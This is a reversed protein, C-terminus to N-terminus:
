RIRCRNLIRRLERRDQLWCCKQLTQRPSQGNHFPFGCTNYWDVQKTRKRTSMLGCQLAFRYVHDPTCAQSSPLVQFYSASCSQDSPSKNPARSSLILPLNLLLVKKETNYKKPKSKSCNPLPNWHSKVPSGRGCLLTRPPFVIQAVVLEWEGQPDSLYVPTSHQVEYLLMGKAVGSDNLHTTCRVEKTRRTNWLRVERRM